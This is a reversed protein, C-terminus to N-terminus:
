DAIRQDCHSEGPDAHAQLRAMRVGFLSALAIGALRLRLTLSADRTPSILACPTRAIINARSQGWKKRKRTRQCGRQPPSTPTEIAPWVAFPARAGPAIINASDSATAPRQTAALAATAM